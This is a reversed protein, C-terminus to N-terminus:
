TLDKRSISDLLIILFSYSELLSSLLTMVVDDKHLPMDVVILQNPLTKIKNVQAMLDEDEEMM